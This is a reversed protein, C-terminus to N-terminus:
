NCLLRNSPLSDCFPISIAVPSNLLDSLSSNPLVVPISSTPKLGTALDLARPSNFFSTSASLFDLVPMTSSTLARSSCVETSNKSRNAFSSTTLFGTPVAVSFTLLTSGAATRSTVLKFSVRLLKVSCFFEGSNLFM